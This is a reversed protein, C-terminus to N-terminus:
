PTTPDQQQPPKTDTTSTTTLTILLSLSHMFVVECLCIDRAQRGLDRSRLASTYAYADCVEGSGGVHNLSEANRGVKKVKM